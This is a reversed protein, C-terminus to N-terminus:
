KFDKSSFNNIKCLTTLEIVFTTGFGEKSKVSVKGGMKSIIQKCISLGLGTGGPNSQSHEKLRTFDKFLHQL